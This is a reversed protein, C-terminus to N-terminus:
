LRLVSSNGDIVAFKFTHNCKHLVRSKLADMQCKLNYCMMNCGYIALWHAAARKVTIQRVENM